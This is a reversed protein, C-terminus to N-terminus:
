CSNTRGFMLAIYKNAAKELALLIFWLLYKERYKKLSWKWWWSLYWWPKQSKYLLGFLTIIFSRFDYSRMRSFNKSLQPPPQIGTYFTLLLGQLQLENTPSEREEDRESICGEWYLSPNNNFTTMIEINIYLCHPLLRCSWLWSVTNYKERSQETVFSVNAPM